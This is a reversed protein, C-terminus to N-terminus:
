GRSGASASPSTSLANELDVMTKAVDTIDDRVAPTVAATERDWEIEPHHIDLYCAASGRRLSGQSIALTLGDMVHILPIIGSTEGCGKVAEGISRV